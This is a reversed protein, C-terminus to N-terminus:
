EKQSLAYTASRPLKQMLRKERESLSDWISQPVPNHEKNRDFSSQVFGIVAQVRPTDTRNPTGRHLCRPDRILVDGANMLLPELPIQGDEIQRLAEEKPLLHTGKAVEFPGHEPRVDVFPFNVAILLPPQQPEPEGVDAHVDQYASGLLPTDSAYEDIVIDEGLMGSVIDIVTDDNFFDLHYFPLKFPM